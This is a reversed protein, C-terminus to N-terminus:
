PKMVRKPGRERANAPVAVAGAAVPGALRAIAKQTSVVGPPVIRKLAQKSGGAAIIRLLDDINAKTMGDAAMKSVTGALAPIGLVPNTMAGGIGLATMLGNGQPSLKGVLRLANQGKGGMIARRAAAEEDATFNHTKKLVRRLNQRAANDVNGGSGTSGARLGADDLATSVENTKALRANLDRATKIMSAAAKPDGSIVQKPGTGGIFRDIEAKMMKGLRQEGKSAGDIVNEHIFQRLQDVETLTPSQGKLTKLQDLAGAVKPHLLPNFNAAKVDHAIVDILGSFTGPKFKVGSNDVADYAVNKAAELAAPTRIQPLKGFVRGLAASGGKLMGGTGAGIAADRAIGLPNDSKSTMAGALAGSAIPGGPLPASAAVNGLTEGIQGPKEGRGAAAAIAAQVGSNLHGIAASAIGGPSLARGPALIAQMIDPLNHISDIKNLRSATNAYPEIAGKLAGLAENSKLQPLQGMRPPPKKASVPAIEPHDPLSVEVGNGGQSGGAMALLDENSLGRLDAEPVAKGNEVKAMAGMLKGRVVPDSMDLQDDPGVGVAQAVTGAYNRSDNESPPAWRNIIGSITNLGHKTAYVQLNQDAADLGGQMDNYVGFRGDSGVMGQQNRAELNLPNNNRVGRPQSQGASLAMLDENSLDSIAM